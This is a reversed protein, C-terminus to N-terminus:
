TTIKTVTSQGSCHACTKATKFPKQGDDGESATDAERGVDAVSDGTEVLLVDTDCM